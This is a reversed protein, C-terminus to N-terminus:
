LFKLDFVVLEGMAPMSRNRTIGRHMAAMGVVDEEVQKHVLQIIFSAGLATEQTSRTREIKVGLAAKKTAVLARGTCRPV